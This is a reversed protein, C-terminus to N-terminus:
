FELSDNYEGRAEASANRVAAVPKEDLNARVIALALSRAKTGHAVIDSEAMGQFLLESALKEWMAVHPGVDSPRVAIAAGASATVGGVRKMNQIQKYKKAGFEPSTEEDTWGIEVADGDHFGAATTVNVRYKNGDTDELSTKKDGVKYPPWLKKITITDEHM